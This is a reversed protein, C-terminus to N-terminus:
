RTYRPLLAAQIPFLPIAVFSPHDVLFDSVAKEVGPTEIDRYDDVVIIGRPTLRPALYELCKRTADYIDVDLHCFAIQDLKLDGVADPFFGQVVKANPMPSLLEVVSEFRTATFPAPSFPSDVELMNQFGGKEFPDFCYFPSNRDLMANCIHLATGGRFTGVELYTGSGALRVLNWLNALRAVDLLTHQKVQACSAAFEQDHLLEICGAQPGLILMKEHNVFTGGFEPEAEAEISAMHRDHFDRLVNSAGRVFTWPQWKQPSARWNSFHTKFVELM